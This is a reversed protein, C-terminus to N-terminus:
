KQSITYNGGGGRVVFSGEVPANNIDCLFRDFFAAHFVKIHYQPLGENGPAEWHHNEGQNVVFVGAGVPVWCVPDDTKYLCIKISTEDSTENEIWM